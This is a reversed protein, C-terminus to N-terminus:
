VEHYVNTASENSEPIVDEELEGPTGEFNPDKELHGKKGRWWGVDYYMGIADDVVIFIELCTFYCDQGYRCDCCRAICTIIAALFSIPLILPDVLLHFFYWKINLTLCGAFPQFSFICHRRVCQDCRIRYIGSKKILKKLFHCYKKGSKPNKM